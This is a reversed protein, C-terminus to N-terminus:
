PPARLAGEQWTGQPAGPRLAPLAPSPGPEERRPGAGRSKVRARPRGAVPSWQVLSRDARLRLRADRGLGVCGAPMAGAAADPPLERGLPKATKVM